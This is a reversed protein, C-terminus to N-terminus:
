NTPFSEWPTVPRGSQLKKAVMYADIGMLPWTLLVSIGATLVALVVAGLLFVVGKAVQGLVMQGLGAICCGSLIAMLLPSDPSSSPYILRPDRPTLRRSLDDPLPVLMSGCFRCKIAEAAISEACFPCKKREDPLFTTVVLEDVSPVQIPTLCRPCKLIKGAAREPASLQGGCNPCQADITM